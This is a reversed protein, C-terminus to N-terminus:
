QGSEIHLNELVWKEDQKLISYDKRLPFGEWGDPMLIRKMNPHGTFRIGFMDFVERELWNAGTFVPTASQAEIGDAVRTHLRVRENREFSYLIYVLDFRPERAPYDIATIDVLYDFLYRDRLHALINVTAEQVVVFFNQELYSAAEQIQAGFHAALADPLAGTWPTSNMEKLNRHRYRRMVVCHNHATTRRPETTCQDESSAAALDQNTICALLAVAVRPMHVAVQSAVANRGVLKQFQRAGVQFRVIDAEAVIRDLGYAAFARAECYLQVGTFSNRPAFNQERRAYGVSQRLDGTNVVEVADANMVAGVAISPFMAVLRESDVGFSAATKSQRDREFRPGIVHHQQGITGRPKRCVVELAHLM